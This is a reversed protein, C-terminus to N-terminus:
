GFRELQRKLDEVKRKLEEKDDELYEKEKILKDIESQMEERLMNLDCKMEKEIEEKGDKLGDNYARDTEEEIEGKYEYELDYEAKECEYNLKKEYDEKSLFVFNPLEANELLSIIEFDELFIKTKEEDNLFFSIGLTGAELCSITFFVNNVKM